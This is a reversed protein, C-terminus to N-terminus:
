CGNIQGKCDPVNLLEIKLAHGAEIWKMTMKETQAAGIGASGVLITGVLFFSSFYNKFLDSEQFHGKKKNNM